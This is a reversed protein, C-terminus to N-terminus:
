NDRNESMFFSGDDRYVRKRGIKSASVKARSEPNNMSNKELNIKTIRDSSLKSHVETRQWKGVVGKMSNSKKKRVELSDKKGLRYQNGMMRKRQETIWKKRTSEYLVSSVTNSSTLFRQLAWIMKSMQIESGFRCLLLHAICHERATLCVLNESINLGGLSKPIIHHSEVYEPASQKTWNRTKAKSMLANYWKEYKNVM